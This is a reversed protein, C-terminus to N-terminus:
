SFSDKGVEGGSCGAIVVNPDKPNFEICVPCSPGQLRVDPLPCDALLNCFHLTM